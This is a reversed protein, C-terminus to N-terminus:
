EQKNLEKEAREALDLLISKENDDFIRPKTDKICFVGVPHGTEKDRLPVGAYFRIFPFGTVMPNDSFRPDKLTDEVIFIDKSLLAHGCFSISRDGGIQVLGICSKYWERDSDLMSIMAMPANLKKVAELTLIDFREEPDTDLIAMRHLALLREKEFTPIPATQM